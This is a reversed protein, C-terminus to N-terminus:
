VMFIANILFSETQPIIQNNSISYILKVKGNPYIVLEWNNSSSSKFNFFLKQIPRYGNTLDFLEIEGGDNEINNKPKITGIISVINGCKKFLLNSVVTFLSNSALNIQNWENDGVFEIIEAIQSDNNEQKTDISQIKQSDQEQKASINQIDQANQEQKRSITSIQSNYRKQINTIESSNIRNNTITLSSLSRTTDGIEITNNEPSVVDITKKIIRLTENLNLFKNKVSYYNGVQFDDYNEDILNLNLVKIVHKENIKNNVELFSKAKRLLNDAVTIDDFIVTKTISGIKDIDNSKLFISGENVDAITLREETNNIKAGLPILNTIFKTPDIEEDNSKINKAVEIVTTSKEGIEQLYDLYLVNDEERLRIEGGFSDILKKQIVEWTTEYNLGKTINNSSEFPKVNVIGRYIRKYSDVQANHNTLIYDIFEELGTRESDGEWYKEEFYPQVSDQLYGLRDECIITKSILGSENMSPKIKLVRGKFDFKKTKTNYVEVLSVFPYFMNFAVNNKLVTFSFSSIANIGESITGNRIKYNNKAVELSHFLYTNDNQKLFVQYM